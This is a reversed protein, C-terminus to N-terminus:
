YGRESFATVFTNSLKDVMKQRHDPGFAQQMAELYVGEILALFEPDNKLKEDIVSKAVRDCASFLADKIPSSVKGSYTSHKNETLYAICEKIIAERGAEGLTDLVAKELLKNIQENDINLNAMM